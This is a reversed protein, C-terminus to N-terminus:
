NTGVVVTSAVPGFNHLEVRFTGARYVNLVAVRQFRGRGQTVHGDADSVYLEITPPAQTVLTVIAPTGAAFPVDFFVSQGPQIIGGDTMPGGIRGAEARPLALVAFALVGICLIRTFRNM